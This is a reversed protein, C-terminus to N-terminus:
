GYFVTKHHNKALSLITLFLIQESTLNFINNLSRIPVKVHKRTQKAKDCATIEKCSKEFNHFLEDIFYVIRFLLKSHQGWDVLM